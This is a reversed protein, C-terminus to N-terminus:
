LKEVARTASITMTNAIDLPISIRNIIYDGFINSERDQVEIRTNVDLHYIPVCQINISENYQTYQYLLDRVYEYASNKSGGGTICNYITEDVLAYTQGRKQAEAIRDRTDEQQNEIIIWDPIEPPFICNVKDDVVVKTRRGINDVSFEGIAGSSDIFDLFFDIDSPTKRVEEYFNPMHSSDDDGWIDYLKPWETQLETYYYNSDTAFPEADAGQLYLETRWDTSIIERKHAIPVSEYTKDKASWQYINGEEKIQVKNKLTSDTYIIKGDKDKLTSTNLVYYFVGSMGEEPLDDWSKITITSKAKIIGDEPDEYKFVIHKNGVKPKRDIALHYRIPIKMGTATERVGWVLFDNKIMNFQPSNSYSTILTSDNFKYVTKGKAQDVIYDDQNIKELEFTSHSTNLYNKIEQFVFNGDLDYFYEYNGLANKITDLVNTIASGADGVLDGGPYYFDSYIYGVDEGNCYKKVNIGKAELRAVENESTTMEWGNGENYLYVPTAGIWKMVKKIRTDLDSIIIKGLQEGGWHNVAEQIIQYMTPYTVITNGDKDISEIENFTVSAPLTGGVEGNLLCMKDKLQLSVNTGGTSHSISPNIIVYTGIPYWIIDYDKYYETTNKFGIEVKVKKNLSLFHNVNTLSIEADKIFVNLNCTRRVASSADVSLNGGTVIGTIDQVPNEAWDLVTIKAFQEKIRQLDVLKLFDADTLYDYKNKM